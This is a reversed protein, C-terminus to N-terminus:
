EMRSSLKSNTIETSRVHAAFVIIFLLLKIDQLKNCSYYIECLVHCHLVPYTDKLYVRIQQLLSKSLSLVVTKALHKGVSQTTPVHLHFVSSHDVESGEVCNSIYLYSLHKSFDPKYSNM